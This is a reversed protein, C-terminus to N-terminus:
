KLKRQLDRELDKKKIDHRKDHLKKGKALAIELKLWGSKPLLLAIPIITNGKTTVGGLLKNLEKKSLLLKRDRLPDHNQHKGSQKYEAIHMGKVYLEGDKFYCHAQKINVKGERISKVESGLLKLGAVYVDIFEYEFSAKKNKQLVLM